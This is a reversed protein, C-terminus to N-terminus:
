SLKDEALLRRKNEIISIALVAFVLSAAVAYMVILWRVPYSKKDAVVPPTIINTFTFHKNADYVAQDYVEEFQGYIRLVDDRRQTLIAMRQAKQEFNEKLRLVDKMNINTSNSGDVTRLYGRTIERAQSEFDILEYEQSLVSLEAEISDLQARKLALTQGMSRAVENYKERHISRIKQNVFHIIALVMDRAIVPDTDMVTIEISEWQTKNIKVNKNYLYNMTSSFYKYSPDIEYHKPLDFKKMVSDRIDESLMWQLMQESESEDSYPAINSPYILAYSKYRPKIFVAGSFIAALLAAIVAIALLHWKWKFFINMMHINSFYNEMNPKINDM